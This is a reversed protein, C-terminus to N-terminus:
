LRSGISGDFCGFVQTHPIQLCYSCLYKAPCPNMTVVSKQDVSNIVKCTNSRFYSCEAIKCAYYECWELAHPPVNECMASYHGVWNWKRANEVITDCLSCREKELIPEAPPANALTACKEPSLMPIGTIAAKANVELLSSSAAKVPAPTATETNKRYANKNNKISSSAKITSSAKSQLLPTFSSSTTYTNEQKLARKKMSGDTSAPAVLQISGLYYLVTVALVLSSMSRQLMLHLIPLSFTFAQLISNDIRERKM